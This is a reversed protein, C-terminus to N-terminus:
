RVLNAGPFGGFPLDRDGFRLKCSALRKGCVDKTFLESGEPLNAVAASLAAQADAREVSAQALFDEAASEASQADACVTGSFDIEGVASVQAINSARRGGQGFGPQGIPALSVLSGNVIAILPATVSSSPRFAFSVPPDISFFTNVVQLVGEIEQREVIEFVPGTGSLVGTGFTIGGIFDFGTANARTLRHTANPGSAVVPQGEVFAALVQGDRILGFSYPPGDLKSFTQRIPLLEPNCSNAVRSRAVNLSAQAQRERSVAANFTALAAAYAEGAQTGDGGIPRDREDAIPPGTYGCEAGRYKWICYNQTIIRRPIQLGELDIKSALQWTITLSTEATKREIFYVDEPFEENSNPSTGNDLYKGLTRRRVVRAGVLDEFANTVSSLTGLVNAVTLEPEPIPGNTSTEFGTIEIPFPEYVQGKWQPKTGDPFIDRTFYFKDGAQQTIPSLDLEFLEVIAEHWSNRVDQQITM